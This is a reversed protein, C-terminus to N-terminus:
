ASLELASYVPLSALRFEVGTDVPAREVKAPEAADPTWCRAGAWAQRFWVTVPMTPYPTPFTLTHLVGSRGDRSAAYHHLGAGVNYVRLRDLRHSMLLQADEALVQPDDVARRAVALRGRGHRFVRYRPRGPDDVLVGREEWGAPTVLTGGGEAFGYLKRALDATPPAEDVYVIADLGDFSAESAAGKELIRYLSGQRGLLNLVEFSLFENPGRYDSVVGLQGVPVYSAWGAHERFFALSRRIVSWTERASARGDLLGVRLHPDPSVLWRAGYAETDAVAQQYSSAAQPQGVDPPEFALWLARPGVLRRALRVYWGNSDLWPAGTPGSVADVDARGRPDLIRLGPWVADLDGLFDSPLASGFGRKRFRLVDFGPVEDTSATAVAALGSAKASGAARRLDATAEVWGVVSLARGRAAAVLPALARQQEEDATSGEAWRVVLCTVPSGTVLELSAPETWARLVDAERATFTDRRKARGLELPGCPWRMPICGDLDV